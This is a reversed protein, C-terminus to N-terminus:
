AHGKLQNPVDPQETHGAGSPLMIKLRLVIILPHYLFAGCSPPASHGFRDPRERVYFFPGDPQLWAYTRMNPIIEIPHNPLM